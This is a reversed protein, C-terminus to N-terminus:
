VSKHLSTILTMSSCDFNLRIHMIESSNKIINELINNGLNLFYISYFNNNIFLIPHQMKKVHYLSLHKEIRNVQGM